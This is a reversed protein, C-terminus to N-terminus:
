FTQKRSAILRLRKEQFHSMKLHNMRELFLIKKRVSPGTMISRVAEMYNAVTNPKWAEKIIKNSVPDKIEELGYAKFEELFGEDIDILQIDREKNFRIFANIGVSYWDSTGKRQAKLTRKVLTQGWSLLYGKKSTNVKNRELVWKSTIDTKKIETELAKKLAEM